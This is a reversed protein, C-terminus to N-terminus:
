EYYLKIVKSKRKLGDNSAYKLIYVRNSALTPLEVVNSLVPVSTVLHGELSYVFISHNEDVVPLYIMYKDALDGINVNWPDLKGEKAIYKANKIKKM